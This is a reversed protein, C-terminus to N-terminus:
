SIMIHHYSKTHSLGILGFGDKEAPHFNHPSLRLTIGGLNIIEGGYHRAQTWLFPKNVPYNYPYKKENSYLNPNNKWYGPHQCQNTHKKTLLNSLRNFTDKPECKCADDRTLQPGAEIILVRIGQEALTLAAVGGTAGSGVIIADYPNIDVTQSSTRGTLLYLM